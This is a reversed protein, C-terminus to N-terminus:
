QCEPGSIVTYIDSIGELSIDDEVTTDRLTITQTRLRKASLLERFASGTISWAGLRQEDRTASRLRTAPAEDLRYQYGRVGGRGRVAVYLAGINVQIDFRQRYLGTCSVKDTMTDKSKRVSWDGAEFIVTADSLGATSAVAPWLACAMVILLAIFRIM